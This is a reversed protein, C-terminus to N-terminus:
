NYKLLISQEIKKKVTQYDDSCTFAEGGSSILTYKPVDIRPAINDINIFFMKKTTCDEFPVPVDSDLLALQEETYFFIDLELM